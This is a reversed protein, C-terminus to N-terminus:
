AIAYWWVLWQRIDVGCGRQALERAKFGLQAEDVLLQVSGRNLPISREITKARHV